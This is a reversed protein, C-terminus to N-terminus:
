KIIGIRGIKTGGTPTEVHYIYLGYGIRASESSLLDWRLYNTNDNKYLTRVLEGTVTYIRVTCERPLNRFEIVKDGRLDSRYSPTEFRSYVVYPNPVVIVNILQADGNKANFDAEKTALEFEDVSTFPKTMTGIFTTNADITPVSSITRKKFTIGMMTNTNSTRYPPPTLIIIEEGFDWRGLKGTGTGDKILVQLTTTDTYCSVKFPAKVTKVNPNSTSAFSDAPATYNGSASTDGTSSTFAVKIDLPAPKVSGISPTGVIVSVEGPVQGTFYSGDPNFALTKNVVFLRIGDFVINDDKGNFVVSNSLPYYQYSVTYTKTKLLLGETTARIRGGASDVAILSDVIRPSLTDSGNFIRVTAPIVNHNKLNLYLKENGIVQEVYPVTRLVSYTLTKASNVLLTDFSIKYTTNHLEQENLVKLTIDGTGVGGTHTLTAGSELEKIPSSSGVAMGNPIAVGTNVDYSFEQTVANQKIIAQSESPPLQLSDDGHDFSVVAYYYTIGNTVTSDVYQHVLGTNDSPEGMYYKVYRGRYEVPMFGGAYKAQEASTWVRHWQATKRAKDDYLAKGLFKYGNGDTVTFVDSFTYDQSRYIKYGEFDNKGTFPDKANEANPEWYLTVRGNGPVVTVKPKPPPQAFRYSAEMVLQATESNLLLDKLDSGMLLAISFRERHGPEMPFPGCGYLFIYDGIKTPDTTYLDSLAATDFQASISNYMLNDNKPRNSGGFPLSWFSRLGIQDSESVDKFGFN